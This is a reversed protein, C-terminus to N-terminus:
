KIKREFLFKTSVNVKLVYFDEGREEAQANDICIKMM